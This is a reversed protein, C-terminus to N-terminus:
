NMAVNNDTVDEIRRAQIYRKRWYVNDLRSIIVGGSTSAHVFQGDEIYIGVHKQRKGTKFFVLDGAELDTKKVEIGEKLQEDTSRPLDTAFQDRLTLKVFGSCDIGKKSLGGYRYPTKSWDEQQQYLRETVSPPTVDSYPDPELVTVKPESIPEPSFTSCGAMTLALLSILLLRFYTKTVMM